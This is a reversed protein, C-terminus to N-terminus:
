YAAWLSEKSLIWTGLSLDVEIRSILVATSYCSAPIGEIQSMPISSEQDGGPIMVADSESAVTGEEFDAESNDYVDQVSETTM